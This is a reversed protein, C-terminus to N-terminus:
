SKHNHLPTALGGHAGKQLWPGNDSLFVVLTNSALGFEELAELIKGTSWDIEEVVDGYLGFDSKGRFNESAHLPVHPMTHALYVFFPKDKNKIIERLGM